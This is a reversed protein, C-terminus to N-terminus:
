YKYYYENNLSEKSYLDKLYKGLEIKNQFLAISFVITFKAQTNETM